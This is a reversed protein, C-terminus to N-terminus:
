TVQPPAPVNVALETPQMPPTQLKHVLLHVEGTPASVTGGLDGTVDVSGSIEREVLDIKHLPELQLGTIRIQSALPAGQVLEAPRPASLIESLSHGLTARVDVKGGLTDGEVSAALHGHEPADVAVLLNTPPLDRYHLDETRVEAKLVPTDAHGTLDLRVGARGTVEPKGEADCGKRLLGTRVAACLVRGVDFTPIYVQARVPVHRRKRISEVPLGVDAAPETDL